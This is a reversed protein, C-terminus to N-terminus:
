GVVSSSSTPKWRFGLGFLVNRPVGHIYWPSKLEFPAMSISVQNVNDTYRMWIVEMSGDEATAVELIKSTYSHVPHKCDVEITGDSRCLRVVFATSRAIDQIVFEDDIDTVICGPRFSEASARLNSFLSQMM